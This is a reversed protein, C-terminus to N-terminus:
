YCFTSILNGLSDRLYACDGDDDWIPSPSYYSFGCSSAHYYNTFVRCYQGPGLVFGPFTFVHNESDRLTWGQLQIPEIDSNRIEVYEDPDQWGTGRRSVRIVEMLGTTAVTATPAPFTRTPTPAPAWLGRKAATASMEVQLLTAECRLDPPVPSAIAYGQEVLERNVFMGGVIVYRLLRGLSDVDSIDRVLLVSKGEVLQRNKEAMQTWIGPDQSSDLMDIGIYRVLYPEGDIEVEITVGDIVGVVLADQKPTNWPVCWSDRVLPGVTATPEVPIALVPTPTWTGTPLSVTTASVTATIPVQASLTAAATQTLKRPKLPRPTPTETDTPLSTPTLTDTGAAQSLQWTAVGLSGLAFLGCLGGAGLIVLAIIVILKKNEM